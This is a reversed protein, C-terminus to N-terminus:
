SVGDAPDEPLEPEESDPLDPAPPVVEVGGRVGDSSAEGDLLAEGPPPVVDLADGVGPGVSPLPVGVGV